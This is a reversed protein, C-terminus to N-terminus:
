GFVYRYAVRQPMKEITNMVLLPIGLALSFLVPLLFLQNQLVGPVLNKVGFLLLDLVIFHVLYLGFAKKGVREFRRVIPISERKILPLLFVGFVPSILAALPFVVISAEHLVSFGYFVVTGILLMWRSRRLFPLIQDSYLSYIVGLPFFIGWVALTIRLVPPTLYRAWTPLKFGLIGPATVNILFLVYLVIIAMLIWPHRRATKVLFPSILYYFVLLPVFNYPYGAILNKIYTPISHSEGHTFYVVGYFVVTWLLYPWLINKLGAWVPKYSLKAGQAQAAYVFFSGSLFLFIPVAFVGLQKLALLFYKEFGIPAALGLEQQALGGLKISHNLIVIVIALGRLAPFQRSM